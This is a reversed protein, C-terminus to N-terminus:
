TVVRYYSLAAAPSHMANNIRLKIKASTAPCGYIETHSGSQAGSRTPYQFITTSCLLRINVIMSWLESNNLVSMSTSRTRCICTPSWVHASWRRRTPWEYVAPVGFGECVDFFSEVKLQKAFATILSQPGRYSGCCIWPLLVTLFLNRLQSHQFFPRPGVTEISM